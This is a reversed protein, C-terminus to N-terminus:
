ERGYLNMRFLRSEDEPDKCIVTAESISSQDMVSSLALLQTLRSKLNLVDGEPTKLFMEGKATEAFAILKKLDFNHITTDAM